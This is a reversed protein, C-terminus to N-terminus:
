QKPPPDISARKFTIKKQRAQEYQEYTTEHRALCARVQEHNPMAMCNDRERDRLEDYMLACASCAGFLSLLLGNKIVKM